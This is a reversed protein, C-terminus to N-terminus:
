TLHKKGMAEEQLVKQTTTNINEIASSAVSEKVLLPAMLLEANPLLQSLGNLKALHNNAKLALKLIEVQNYNFDGPLFPLDNYPIRPNFVM